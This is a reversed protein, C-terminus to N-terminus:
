EYRELVFKVWWVILATLGLAVGLEVLVLLLPIGAVLWIMLGIILSVPSLILIPVKIKDLM